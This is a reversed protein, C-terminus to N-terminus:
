RVIWLATRSAAAEPAAVFTYTFLVVFFAALARRMWVPATLDVRLLLLCLFMEFTAREGSPLHVWIKEHNLCGAVLSYLVAAAAIPERRAMLAVLSLALASAVVWPFVIAGGIEPAAQTGALGAEFLRRLGEFPVGFDDPNAFVARWGFDDFLAWGVFARWGLLPLVSLSLLLGPRRDSTGLTTVVFAAVLLVGTERVLLSAGFFLAALLPRQARWCTVGAVLGAAALAEPLAFLLSPMFAPIGLYLLGTASPLGHGHALRALLGALALHAAVILWMM